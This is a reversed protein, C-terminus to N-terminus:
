SLWLKGEAERRRRLGVEVSTGPNVYLMMAAPVDSWRKERLCRTITGFGSTGYFGTGCNYAFSILACKQGDSMESWYPIQRGLVAAVRDIEHRLMMDAEVKTIQDGPRVPRGDPYRTNGVGITWPEGGTGPDPYAKLRIGEFNSIIRLAQTLDSQKGDQSWTQFWERDRRMAASYGNAKLDQELQTIAALQHPLGRSYRFLQELTIPATNAM